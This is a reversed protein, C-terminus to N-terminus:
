SLKRNLAIMKLATLAAEEGKHGHTGGTREAAQEVTDVTLVGFIVPVPLALNLQTAGETVAQCVYDFHPTGGRIVCGLMILADPSEPGGATAEYYRRCGFALEMAGPVQMKVIKKVHHSGLAQECGRVLEDVVEHNWETHLLVVVANAMSPIGDDQLLTDNHRSM